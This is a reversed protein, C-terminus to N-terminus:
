PVGLVTERAPPRSWREGGAMARRDEGEDEPLDLFRHLDTVLM